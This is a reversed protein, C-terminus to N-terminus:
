RKAGLARTLTAIERKLAIWKERGRNDDIQGALREAQLRMEEASANAEELLQEIPANAANVADRLATLEDLRSRFESPKLPREEYKELM